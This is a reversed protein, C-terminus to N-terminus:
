YHPDSVEIIFDLIFIKGWDRLVRQVFTGFTRGGRRRLWPSSQPSPIYIRSKVRVKGEGMLLPSCIAVYNGFLLCAPGNRAGARFTCIDFTYGQCRM